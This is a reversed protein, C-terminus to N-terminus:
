NLDQVPEAPLPNDYTQNPEVMFEDYFGFLSYGENPIEPNEYYLRLYTEEGDSVEDVDKVVGGLMPYDRPTFRQGALRKRLIDILRM